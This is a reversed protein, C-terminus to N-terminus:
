GPAWRWYSFIIYTVVVAAFLATALLILTKAIRESTGFVIPVPGIIIVGGGEVKGGGRESSDSEKLVSFMMILMGALVLLFSITLLLTLM